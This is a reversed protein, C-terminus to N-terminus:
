FNQPCNGFKELLEAVIKEDCCKWIESVHKQMWVSNISFNQHYRYTLVRDLPVELEQVQVALCSLKQTGREWGRPTLHWEIWENFNTLESSQNVM